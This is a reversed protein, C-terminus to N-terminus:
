GPRPHTRYIMSGHVETGTLSPPKEVAIYAALDNYEERSEEQVYM